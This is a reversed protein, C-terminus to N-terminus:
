KETPQRRAVAQLIRSRFRVPLVETWEPGFAAGRQGQSVPVASPGDEAQKCRKLCKQTQYRRNQHGLNGLVGEIM